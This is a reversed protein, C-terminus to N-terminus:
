SPHHFIVKGTFQNGGGNVYGGDSWLAIGNPVSVTNGTLTLLIGDGPRWGYSVVEGRVHNRLMVTNGVPGNVSGSGRTILFDGPGAFTNAIYRNGAAGAGGLETFTRDDAGTNGTITNDRGHYVEVASGDAGYVPSVTIQHDFTNGEVTNHAGWLLVGFAGSALHAPNLADCHDIVSDSLTGDSASAEFYVGAYLGGFLRVDAVADDTGSVAVGIIYGNNGDYGKGTIRLRRITDGRGSVELDSGYSHRTVVPWPGPGDNQITVDDAAVHLTGTYTAGSALGYTRGALVRVSALDTGPPIRIVPTSDAAPAARLGGAAFVVAAVAAAGGRGFMTRGPRV